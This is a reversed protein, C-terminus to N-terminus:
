QEEERALVDLASVIGTQGFDRGKYLLPLGRSRALSYGFLDGFNLAAPRRARGKGFSAFADLATEALEDDWAVIQAEYEDLLARAGQLGKPGFRRGAVCVFEVKTPASVLPAMRMLARHLIPRDPEKALIAVFASTDVVATIV